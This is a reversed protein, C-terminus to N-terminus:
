LLLKIGKYLLLLAFGCLLVGLARIIGSILDLRMKHRHHVLLSSLFLFWSLAGIALFLSYCLCFYIQFTESPLTRMASSAGLGVGSTASDLTGMFSKVIAANSGLVHEMGGVNLGISAAASLVLFSTMLWGIFPSPNSANLLLGAWFGNREQLNRLRESGVRKVELGSAELRALVIRIGVVFLVVSGGLLLYTVIAAYYKYLKTIGYVSIFCVLFDIISSGIAATRCYRLEGKLGHSTILISIPGVIPISCVFGVVLGIFSITILISLM